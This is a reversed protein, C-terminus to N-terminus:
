ASPRVKVSIELCAPNYRQRIWGLLDPGRFRLQTAAAADNAHFVVKNGDLNTIRVAVSWPEKLWAHFDSNARILRQTRSLVTPM